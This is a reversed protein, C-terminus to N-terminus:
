TRLNTVIIFDNAYTSFKDQIDDPEYPVEFVFPIQGIKLNEKVHENANYLTYNANRVQKELDSPLTSIFEKWLELIKGSHLKFEWTEQLQKFTINNFKISM